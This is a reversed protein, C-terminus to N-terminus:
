EYEKEREDIVRTGEKLGSINAMSSLAFLVGFTVAALVATTGLLIGYQKLAPLWQFDQIFFIIIFAVLLVLIVQYTKVEKRYHVGM